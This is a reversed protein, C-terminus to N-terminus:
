IGANPWFFDLGIVIETRFPEGTAEDVVEVHMDIGPQITNIYERFARTDRARFDNEIYMHIFHRDRNGNISQIMQFLRTSLQTDPADVRKAKKLLDNIYKQDGNTLLRFEITDGTSTTFIFTNMGPRYQTTDVQKPALKSLDITVKQSNGSPTQVTSEYLEGYGYIRAAVMIADRDGLLMTDYNIKTTILSQFLKDLVIGSKIYSETTLIDEEKATMFKVEVYGASLPDNSDYLTGGSPLMVRNTPYSATKSEEALTREYDAIIQRTSEGDVDVTPTAAVAGYDLATNAPQQRQALPSKADVKINTGPITEM